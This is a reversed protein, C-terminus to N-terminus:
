VGIQRLYKSYNVNMWNDKLRDIVANIQEKCRMTPSHVFKEKQFVYTDPFSDIEASKLTIECRYLDGCDFPRYVYTQTHVANSVFPLIYMQEPECFLMAIRVDIHSPLSKRFHLFSTIYLYNSEYRRKRKHEREVYILPSAFEVIKAGTFLTFRGKPINDDHFADIDDELMYKGSAIRFDAEVIPKDTMTM